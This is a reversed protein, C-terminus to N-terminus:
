SDLRFLLGRLAEVVTKEKVTSRDGDFWFKQADTEGGPNSWAIWVTGVPKEDTGGGPGAIGTVAVTWDAGSLVKIGWAMAKATGSSVAGKEDLLVPSVGLVGTKVENAYAVVGGWVSSSSGPVETLAHLIAGGTCSEAM